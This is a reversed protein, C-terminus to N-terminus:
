AYSAMDDIYALIVLDINLSRSSPDLSDITAL